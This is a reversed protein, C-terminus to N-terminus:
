RLRELDNIKWYESAGNPLPRRIIFPIKGEKLEQLAITYGDIMDETKKIFPKAGCNLQKSRVGLIKTREYKTLFPITKHLPDIIKGESDRVVNSLALLEDFNIQVAEPHLNLMYENKKFVQDLKKYMQDDDEEDDDSDEDSDVSKEDESEENFAEFLERDQGSLSTAKTYFTGFSDKSCGTPASLGQRKLEALYLGLGRKNKIKDDNLAKRIIDAHEAPPYIYIHIRNPQGKKKKNEKHFEKSPINNPRKLLNVEDDEDGASSSTPSSVTNDAEEKQEFKSEAAATVIQSAEQIDAAAPRPNSTIINPLEEINLELNDTTTSNEMSNSM